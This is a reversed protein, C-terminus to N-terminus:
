ATFVRHGPMAGERSRRPYSDSARNRYEDSGSMITSSRVAEPLLFGAKVITEIKEGTVLDVDCTCHMQYNQFVLARSAADTPSGLCLVSGSWGQAPTTPEVTTWLLSASQTHSATDWMYHTGIVGADRIAAPNITGDAVVWRQTIANLKVLYVHHGSLAESYEAWGTVVPYGPPSILHPLKESTILSLDHRYGTPYPFVLSPSDFTQTITGVLTPKDAATLWVEKGIPSNSLWGRSMVSAPTDARTPLSLLRRLSDKKKCIWDFFPLMRSQDPQKVFGHTVTTIGETGDQLKIRLGLCGDGHIADPSGSVPMGSAVTDSTIDIELLDYMVRLGGVVMVWDNLYMHQIDSLSTFLMVLYGAAHVRAGVAKPFIERLADLQDHSLFKRPNIDTQFLWEEKWPSRPTLIGHPKLNSRDGPMPHVPRGAVVNATCNGVVLWVEPGYRPDSVFVRDCDRLAPHFTRVFIEDEPAVQPTQLARFEALEPRGWGRSDTEKRKTLLAFEVIAESFFLMLDWKACAECLGIRKADTM